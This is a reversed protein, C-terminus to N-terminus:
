RQRPREARSNEVALLAKRKKNDDRRGKQTYLKKAEFAPYYENAFQAKYQGVGYEKHSIGPCCDFLGVCFTKYGEAKAWMISEYLLFNNGKLTKAAELSCGGYYFVSDKYVHHMVAAIAEGDREAFFLRITKEGDLMRYMGEFHERAHAHGATRNWSDTHIRHYLDLGEGSDSRFALGMKRAKNVASRCDEDLASRLEAESRDLDLLAVMRPPVSVQEYVGVTHLPNAHPRRQPSLSECNETMRIEVVDIRNARALDDVHAMIKRLLSKRGKAGLTASLAPGSYGTQLSRLEFVSRGSIVRVLVRIVRQLIRAFRNDTYVPRVMLYLPCVAVLEDTDTHVAFSLSEAGEFIAWDVYGPTQYLWGDPSEDVLRNWEKKDSSEYDIFKM